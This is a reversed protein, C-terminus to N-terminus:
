KREAVGIWEGWGVVKGECEKALQDRKALTSMKGLEENLAVVQYFYRHPGHGRLPMPAGYVAGALTKAFRLGGRLEGKGKGAKELDGQEIGTKSAPIRYVAGHLAPTPIIPADADEIVLLYEVITSADITPPLTWTLTPFLGDGDETHNIDFTSESSGCDPSTILLTPSPHSTFAPGKTFLKADRGKQNRTLYAVTREFTDMNPLSSRGCGAVVEQLGLVLQAGQALRAALNGQHAPKVEVLQRRRVCIGQEAQLNRRIEPGVVARVDRQHVVCLFAQNSVNLVAVLWQGRHAGARGLVDLPLVIGGHGVDVFSSGFIGVAQEPSKKVGGYPLAPEDHITFLNIHVAGSQIKKAVRMERALSNTYVSATLGYETDNALKIAEVETEVEFLSVLSGFSETYYIDMSKTVEGLVVPRMSAALGGKRFNPNYVNTFAGILCGTAASQLEADDLIICSAKGGLELLVPKVFKGATSAIASGVQTSGTFSLKKVGPHAILATTVEQADSARHYIVNVCGKPMGAKCFIEGLAWFSKPSLESGKLIVTNGAALPFAVARMGLIFPSNMTDAVKWLLARRANPKQNSWQPFATEAAAVAQNVEQVSASSSQYLVKGTTPSIINFKTSTIVADNNIILPIVSPDAFNSVKQAMSAPSNLAERESTYIRNIPLKRSGEM